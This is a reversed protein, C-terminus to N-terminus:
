VNEPKPTIKSKILQKKWRENLSRGKYMRYFSIFFDFIMLIYTLRFLIIAPQFTLNSFVGDYSYFIIEYIKHYYVFISYKDNGNYVENYAPASKFLGLLIYQM